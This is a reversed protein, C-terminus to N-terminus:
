MGLSEAAAAPNLVVVEGAVLGETVEMLRDNGRGVQLPRRELMEGQKVFCYATGDFRQIAEVPISIVEEVRDIQIEVVATMGPRLLSVEDDITVITEYAKTDSNQWSGHHPMLEIKQVTGQYANESFAETSVTARLGAKVKSSVTEHVLTQVQMRSLDPLSLIRQGRQVLAGLEITPDRSYRPLAYAVMGDQPAYINCNEINQEYRALREEEKALIRNAANLEAETQALLASNDLRVQALNRDATAKAGRLELLAMDREYQTKMDVTALYTEMRNLKAALLSQAQLYDLRVREVESRGAYGYKFLSEIGNKANETLKLSAKAQLVQNETDDILREIADVDLRHTGSEPHQFMELQLGALKIALEAEAEATANLSIQNQYAVDAQIQNARAQDTEIIQEDRQEIHSGSDLKVILDGQKVHTGNPVIWVIANGLIGDGNMDDVQSRVLVNRQSEIKGREVIKIDFSESRIEHLLLDAGPESGVSMLRATAFTSFVVLGLIALPLVRRNM